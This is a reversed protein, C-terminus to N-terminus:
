LQFSRINHIHIYVNKCSNMFEEQSIVGDKDADMKEFVKDVHRDVMRQITRGNHMMEYIASVTVLMEKRTIYGDGNLDYFRIFPM